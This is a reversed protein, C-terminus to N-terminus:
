SGLVRMVLGWCFMLPLSCVNFMLMSDCCAVCWCCSGLVGVEGNKQLLNSKPNAPPENHLKKSPPLSTRSRARSRTRSRVPSRAQIRLRLSDSSDASSKKQPPHPSTRSRTRLPSTIYCCQHDDNTLRRQNYLAKVVEVWILPVFSCGKFM